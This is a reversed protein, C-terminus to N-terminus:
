TAPEGNVIVESLTVTDGKRITHPDREVTVFRTVVAVTPASTDNLMVTLSTQPELTANKSETTAYVGTIGYARYTLGARKGGKERM